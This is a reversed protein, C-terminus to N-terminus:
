NKLYDLMDIHEVNLKKQDIMKLAMLRGSNDEVLYVDGFAGHGLKQKITYKDLLVSGKAFNKQM